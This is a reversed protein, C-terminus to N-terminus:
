VKNLFTLQKATVSVGKGRRHVQGKVLLAGEQPGFILHGYQMYIDEFVTVDTLGFEDELSLFVTIRGSRTPPRHPRFLLGCVQM